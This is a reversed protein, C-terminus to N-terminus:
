LWGGVVRAAPYQGDPGDCIIGDGLRGNRVAEMSAPQPRGPEPVQDLHIAHDRQIPPLKGEPCIDRQVARRPRNCDQAM